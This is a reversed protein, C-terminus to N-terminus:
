ETLETRRREDRIESNPDDVVILIATEQSPGHIGGGELFQLLPGGRARNKGSPQNRFLGSGLFRSM